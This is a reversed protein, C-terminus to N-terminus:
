IQDKIKLKQIQPVIAASIHLFILSVEDLFHSMKLIAESFIKCLLINHTIATIYSAVLLIKCICAHLLNGRIQKRVM